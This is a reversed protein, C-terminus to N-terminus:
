YLHDEFESQAGITLRRRNGGNEGADWRNSIVAERRSEEEPLTKAKNLRM